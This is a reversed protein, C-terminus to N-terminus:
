QKICMIHEQPGMIGELTEVLAHGLPGHTLLLIGIM